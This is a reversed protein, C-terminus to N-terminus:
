FTPTILWKIQASSKILKKFLNYFDVYICEHIFMSKRNNLAFAWILVYHQIPVHEYVFFSM